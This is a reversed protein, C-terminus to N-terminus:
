KRKKNWRGSKEEGLVFPSVFFISGYIASSFKPELTIASRSFPYFLKAILMHFFIEKSYCKTFFRFNLVKPVFQSRLSEKPKQEVVKKWCDVIEGDDSPAM